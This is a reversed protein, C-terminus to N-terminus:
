ASSTRTTARRARPAHGGPTATAPPPVTDPAAADKAHGRTGPPGPAGQRVVEAARAIARYANSAQNRQEPRLAPDRVLLQAYGLATTVHNALEDFATEVVAGLDPAGPDLIAVGRVGRVHGAPDRLALWRVTYSPGAAVFRGQGDCSEGALAREVQALLEPSYGFVEDVRRGVMEAAAGVLAPPGATTHCVIGAPSIDFVAIPMTAVVARLDQDLRLIETAASRVLHVAREEIQAMLREAAAVRRAQHLMTGALRATQRLLKAERATFPRGAQRLAELAGRLPPRRCTSAVALPVALYARLGTQQSFGARQWTPDAAADLLRVVEGDFAVRGVLSTRALRPPGRRGGAPRTQLAVRQLGGGQDVLWACSWPAQLVESVQQVVLELVGTDDLKSRSGPLTGRGACPDVYSGVGALIGGVAPTTLLALQTHKPGAGARVSGGRLFV